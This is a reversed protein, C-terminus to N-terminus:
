SLKELLMALITRMQGEIEIKKEEMELRKKELILRQSENEFQKMSAEAFIQLSFHPKNNYFLM